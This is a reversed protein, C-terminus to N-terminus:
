KIRKQMDNAYLVNDFYPRLVDLGKSFIGHTVALVMPGKYKFRIAKGVETFTRGGDCIDDVIYLCDYENIDSPVPVVTKLIEGTRVDRVKTGHIFSCDLDRALPMIKKTAGLDPAVLLIKRYGQQQVNLRILPALLTHQKVERLIGAPFLGGVVDSHLDHVEIEWFGLKSVIDAFVKASLATGYEMVRDQRAFPFYKCDLRISLRPSLRNLADMLLILDVLDNSSQYKLIVSVNRIYKVTDPEIIRLHREGGPFTSQELEFFQNGGYLQVSM